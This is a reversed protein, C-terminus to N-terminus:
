QTSAPASETEPSTQLLPLPPQRPSPPPPFMGAPHIIALHGDMLPDDLLLNPRVLIEPNLEVITGWVCAYFPITITTTTATEGEEQTTTRVTVEAIM